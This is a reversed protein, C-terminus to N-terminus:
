YYLRDITCDLLLVKFVGVLLGLASPVVILRPLVFSLFTLLVLNLLVLTLLVLTLLVLTLLV